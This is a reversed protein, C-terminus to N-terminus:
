PTLFPTKAIFNCQLGTCLIRDADNRPPERRIRFLKDQIDSVYGRFEYYDGNEIPIKFTHFPVAGLLIKLIWSHSIGGMDGFQLSYNKYTGIIDRHLVGDITRESYSDLFDGKREITIFPERIEVGDIFIGRTIVQEDEPDTGVTEDLTRDYYRYGIYTQERSLTMPIDLVYYPSKIWPKVSILSCSLGDYEIDTDHIKSIKDKLGSVYMYPQLADGYGSNTAWNALEELKEGYPLQIRHGDVPEALKDFIADHTARDDIFGFEIDYTLYVGILERYLDGKQTREAFKDLFNWKRSVTMLPVDYATGDIKIPETYFTQQQPM